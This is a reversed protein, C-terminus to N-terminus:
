AAMRAIIRADLKDLNRESVQSGHAKITISGKRQTATGNCAGCTDCQLKKGAEESAPCIVEGKAKVGDRNVRFTRFGKAHAMTADNPTDASAMVLRQWRAGRASEWQHTYGTHGKSRSLLAEWIEAPVAKPDGYTGLRVMRGAGVERIEETSQVKAYNGRQFCLWVSTVGQGVNVYCTRGSFGDDGRHVCKGCIAGDFGLKIAEVPSVDRLLIYTQLMNGTKRNKSDNLGVAIVVIDVERHGALKSKGEWLIIGNKNM